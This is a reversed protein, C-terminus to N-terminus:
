IEMEILDEPWKELLAVDEAMLRHADDLLHAGLDGMDSRAIPDDDREVDGAPMAPHALLLQEGLAFRGLDLVLAHTGRQEAVGLQVALHRAALRFVQPHRLGLESRDFNWLAWGVFPEQKQRVNQGCGPLRYLVRRDGLAAADDDESEARDALHGRADRPVAACADDTHIQHGLPEFHGALMADLDQIGVVNVVHGGRQALQGAPAARVRHDVRDANLGVARCWGVERLRQGPQQGAGDGLRQHFRGADVAEPM